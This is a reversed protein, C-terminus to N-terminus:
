KAKPSITKGLDIAYDIADLLEHVIIPKTLYRLFGATLGKSIDGVMANASIAIVPIHATEPDEGLIKLAEIGNMGPLNIDMLIVAPQQRKALRIGELATVASLLHLHPRRAIIQQVLDLNAPNDEVYLLTLKPADSAVPPRSISMAGFAPGELSPASSSDLDYWFTSGVGAQSEVGIEGGMLEVLLKSMVLGIGTGEEGSHEQGLRNFPQFLQRQQEPSLGLGTDQVSMRIRGPAGPGCEVVVSGGARNYKIANSLLNILVQKLRVRDAQVFLPVAFTPFTLTVARKQAQPEIMSKCDTLVDGLSVPEASLSLRGSEIVALDLIENILELLYWGAHLIRDISAKQSPTAPPTSSDMLQAFGLIANLPSRLEHSMSSLFESKALNAKDAVLIATELEANKDKLAQDLLERDAEVQKRASNDTGILLYGIVAGKGDRLATVSIVAPFRVGNKHILTLEYIDEIGRSAKFALAEFGPAIRTGLEESLALSRAVVEDPDSFDAPTIKNLVEDAPYGLMREAGVNFIQIVGKADTAISSFNASDFIATQLANSKILAEETQKRLTIDRLLCTFHREGGLDMDSVALELTFALGEKTRGVIERGHDHAKDKDSSRFPEISGYLQEEGLAPILLSFPRGIVEAAPYGFMRQAAPNITEVLGDQARLTIIGDVVTDLITRVLVSSDRMAKQVAYEETVDHFVLVAGIVGGDRGRIPACSDAIARETGDQAILLTHNALGQITGQLLTEGVPTIATRRTEQNIIRFIEDVPLGEAQALTFGTLQEAVPNMLRVRAKADTAIVADGISNLTVALKEQNELLALNTQQLQGNLREQTGLLDRTELHVLARLRDQQRRRSSYIYVMAVLFALVGLVVMVTSMRDMRAQFVTENQSLQEEELRMFAELGARIADMIRKGKGSSVVAAAVLAGQSRRADIVRALEEIRNELLPALADLQVQSPGLMTLQRLEVLQSRLQGRVALYPELFADEGTLAFGRAGTEAESLDAQLSTAQFILHFTQQRVRAAERMQAFVWFSPAVVLAVLLLAGIATALSRSTPKLVM